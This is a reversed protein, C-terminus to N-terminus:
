WIWAVIISPTVLTAGLWTIGGWPPRFNSAAVEVRYSGGSLGSITFRGQSDSTASGVVNGGQVAEVNMGPLGRENPDIANQTGGGGPAFDLWVTGSIGGQVSQPPAAPRADKPVLDPPIGVFGLLATNGPAFSTSTILAKGQPTLLKPDRPRVEPYEGPPRFVDAVTRIAANATGRHPDQEYVVRWIVGASLASIAMPMFLVVKFATSWKIREALVALVLAIATVIAPGILWIANNRIATLTGPNTFMRHYNQVGVFNTGAKDYFSRYVSYFIPYIVLFGLLVLAPALFLLSMLFPRWRESRPRPATVAAAPGATAAGGLREAERKAQESESM